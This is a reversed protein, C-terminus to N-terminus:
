DKKEVSQSKSSKSEVVKDVGNEIMTSIGEIKANIIPKLDNSKGFDMTEVKKQLVTSGATSLGEIAIKTIAEKYKGQELQSEIQMGTGIKSIYGGIGVAPATAGGTFPALLSSGVTIADGVNELAKGIGEQQM